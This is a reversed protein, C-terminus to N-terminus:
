HELRVLGRPNVAPGPPTGKQAAAPPAAGTSATGAPPVTIEVWQPMYANGDNILTAGNRPNRSYSALTRGSALGHEPHASGLYRYYTSDSPVSALAGSRGSPM